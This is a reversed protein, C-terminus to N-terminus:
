STTTTIITTAAPPPKSSLRSLQHHNQDYDHCNAITKIITTVSPPSSNIDETTIPEQTIGKRVDIHGKKRNAESINLTDKLSHDITFGCQIQEKNM